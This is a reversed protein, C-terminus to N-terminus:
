FKYKTKEYKQSKAYKEADYIGQLEQPLEDTWRTTNLYSLYKTLFTEFLFIGIISWYFFDQTMLYTM